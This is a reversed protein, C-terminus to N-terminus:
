HNFSIILNILEHGEKERRSHVVVPKASFQAFKKKLKQEARLWLTVVAARFRLLVRM